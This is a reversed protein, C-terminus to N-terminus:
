EMHELHTATMTMMMMMVVVEVVAHAGLATTRSRVSCDARLDCSLSGSGELPHSLRIQHHTHVATAPTKLHRVAHDEMTRQLVPARLATPQAREEILDRPLQRLVVRRIQALPVSQNVQLGLAAGLKHGIRPMLHPMMMMLLLLLLMMVLLLLLLLLSVAYRRLRFMRLSRSIMMMMRM